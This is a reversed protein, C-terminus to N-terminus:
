GAAFSKARFFRLRNANSVVTVSSAAMAAGAIIPSLLIGFFPFLLGAAV